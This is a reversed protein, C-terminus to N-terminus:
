DYMNEVAICQLTKKTYDFLLISKYDTVFSSIVLSSTTKLCRKKSAISSNKIINKGVFNKILTFIFIIFFDISIHGLMQLCIICKNIFNMFIRTCMYKIRIRIMTIHYEIRKTAHNCLRKRKQLRLNVDDKCEQLMTLIHLM